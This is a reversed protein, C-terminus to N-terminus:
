QQCSEINDLVLHLLNWLCRARWNFRRHRRSGYSWHSWHRRQLGHGATQRNTQDGFVQVHATDLPEWSDLDDATLGADPGTLVTINDLDLRAQSCPFEGAEREMEPKAFIVLRYLELHRGVHWAFELGHGAIDREAIELAFDGHAAHGAVDVGARQCVKNGCLRCRAVDVQVLAEHIAVHHALRAVDVDPVRGDTAHELGIRTVDGDEVSDQVVGVDETEAPIHAQFTHGDLAAGAQLRGAAVYACFKVLVVDHDVDLCARALCAHPSWADIDRDLPLTNGHAQRGDFERDVGAAAIDLDSQCLDGEWCPMVRGRGDCGPTRTRPFSPVMGFHLLRSSFPVTGFHLLRPTHTGCLREARSNVHQLTMVQMRETRLYVTPVRFPPPVLAPRHCSDSRIRTHNDRSTRCPRLRCRLAVRRVPLVSPCGM